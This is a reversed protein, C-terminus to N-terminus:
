ILCLKKIGVNGIKCSIALMGQNKCKPLIKKQLVMFIKERVSIKGNNVVKRKSTCLEM